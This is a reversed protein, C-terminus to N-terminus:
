FYKDEHNSIKIIMKNWKFNFGNSNIDIIYSNPFNKIVENAVDNINFNKEPFWYNTDCNEYLDRNNLMYKISSTLYLAIKSSAM